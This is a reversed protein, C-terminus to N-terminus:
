LVVVKIVGQLIPKCLIKYGDADFGAAVTDLQRASALDPASGLYCWNRVVHYQVFNDDLPCTEVLAIAAEYPWCVVQMQILASMLRQDHAGRTEKGCCVGACRKVMHRFCPKGAVLKELGLAGHCLRHDDALTILAEKAAHRSAFLGFLNATTAFNLSNAHVIDLQLNRGNDHESVYTVQTTQRVPTVWSARWACLQRNRRLKQNFLPQKQKILQSELLLAGIEGATRIHEIRQTQRLMRAEDETRLHSLVRNRLHVSKGIYLPLDDAQGHFIYVGPAGPLDGMADKLHQPYEYLSAADFAPHTRRTSRTRKPAPAPVPDDPM